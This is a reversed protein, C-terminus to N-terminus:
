FFKAILAINLLDYTCQFYFYNQYTLQQFDQNHQVFTSYMLSCIHVTMCLVTFIHEIISKIDTLQDLKHTKFSFYLHLVVLLAFIFTFVSDVDRDFEEKEM